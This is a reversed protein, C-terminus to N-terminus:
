AGNIEPRTPETSPAGPMGRGPTTSTAGVQQHTAEDELWISSVEPSVTGHLAYRGDVFPVFEIVGEARLFDWFMRHGTSDSFAFGEVELRVDRGAPVLDNADKGHLKVPQDVIPLVLSGDISLM